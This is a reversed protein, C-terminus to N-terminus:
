TKSHSLKKEFSSRASSAAICDIATLVDVDPAVLSDSNRQGSNDEIEIKISYIRLFRQVSRSKKPHHHRQANSGTEICLWPPHCRLSCGLGFTLM